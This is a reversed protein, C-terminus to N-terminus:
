PLRLGELILQLEAEDQFPIGRRLDPIQFSPLEQLRIDTVDRLRSCGDPSGDFIAVHGSSVGLFGEEGEQCPLAVVVQNEDFSEIRWEPRASIVDASSLGILEEPLPERAIRGVRGDPWEHRLVLETEPGAAARASDEHRRSGYGIRLPDAPNWFVSLSMGALLALLGVLGLLRWERRKM